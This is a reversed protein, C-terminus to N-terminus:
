EGPAPLPLTAVTGPPVRQYAEFLQMIALSDTLTGKRPPREELVAACFEVVEPVYGLYFLNKNYLQGLSFEPEWVVPAVDDDVLFSASRGYARQAGPRYYTVRVGNDVVVSADHGIVEVREVPATHAAGAALHLTGVAGSAFRVSAVSAGNAPEWEHHFREVPGGLYHLIAGPHYIHDLFGRMARLDARKDFEPLGQPYRVSVSSVPGFEPATSLARVKEIAPTFIKKLGTMVHKGAQESAAALMRVEAVSAATPKEMWVHAGARLCDLALDTAQVRGTVPDYSTVIFVATPKERALMETHDAYAAPAGFMRAYTTARKEDVDCVAVLDVPAYQFAPYVNRYSHGGAGIFAVRIRQDYEFQYRVQDVM